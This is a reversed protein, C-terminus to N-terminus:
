RSRKPPAPVFHNPYQVTTTDESPAFQLEDFRELVCTAFLQDRIDTEWVCSSAVDGAESIGFRVQIRGQAEPIRVLLRTYCDRIEPYKGRVTARIQEPDRKRTPLADSPSPKAKGRRCLLEPNMPELKPWWPPLDGVKSCSAVVVAALAVQGLVGSRHRRRAGFM